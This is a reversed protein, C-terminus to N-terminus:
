GGTLGPKPGFGLRRYMDGRKDALKLCWSVDDIFDVVVPTRKGEVQRQIRGIAQEPDSMPTTMMLTDLLPIDLGEQVMQVTAFIVQAESSVELADEEMGGVYYGTTTAKGEESEKFAKTLVGLHKLRESLVLVKRGAKAAEKIEKLILANRTPNASLINLQIARPLFEITRQGPVHIFKFGTRVRRVNPTMMREKAHFLIPGIHWFFVDQTQDKRRPTATLGVRYKATFKPIVQSWTPASVRHVEDSIVMGFAKYIAPPYERQYLSQVMGIVIDNGDVECRDGQIHGVKASPLFEGIRERWQNMLFEKHVLILAKRGMLSMLLCAWYTKGWGPAAQLIGGLRGKKMLEDYFHEVAEKQEPRPTGVFKPASGNVAWPMDSTVYEIEYEKKKTQFFWDRPVGLLDPREEYLYLPQPTSYESTARPMVTLSRKITEVAEPTLCDAGTKPLWCWRGITTKM